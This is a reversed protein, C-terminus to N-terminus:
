RGQTLASAPEYRQLEIPTSAVQNLVPPPVAQQQELRRVKM